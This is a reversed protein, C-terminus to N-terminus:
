HHGSVQTGIRLEIQDPASECWLLLFCFMGHKSLDISESCDTSQPGPNICNSTLEKRGYHSSPPSYDCSSPLAPQDCKDWKGFCMGKLKVTETTPVSGLSLSATNTCRYSCGLLNDMSTRIIHFITLWKLFFGYQWKLSLSLEAYVSVSCNWLETCYALFLAAYPHWSRYLLPFVHQTM